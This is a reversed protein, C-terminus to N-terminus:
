GKGGEENCSCGGESHSGNKRAKTPPAEAKARLEQEAKAADREKQRRKKQDQAEKKSKMGQLIAALSADVRSVKVEAEGEGVEAEGEGGSGPTRATAQMAAEGGSGPTGATAKVEAEHGSGPTGASAEVEAEQGEVSGSGRRGLDSMSRVLQLAGPSAKSRPTLMSFGPLQPSDNQPDDDQLTRRDGGSMVFEFLKRQDRQMQAMQTMMANAMQMM